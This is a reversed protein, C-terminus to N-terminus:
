REAHGGTLMYVSRAGLVEGRASLVRCSRRSPKSRPTTMSDAGVNLHCSRRSRPIGLRAADACARTGGEAHMKATQIGIRRAGLSRWREVDTPSPQGPFCLNNVSIRDHMRLRVSFRSTASRSRWASASETPPSSATCPRSTRVSSTWRTSSSATGTAATTPSIRRADGEGSGGDFPIATIERLLRPDHGVPDRVFDPYRVHHIRPDDILPENLNARFNARCAALHHGGRVRELRSQGGPERQDARVLRDAFRDVQVPDRHTWVMCADPYTDFLTALRRGHFGKLVWYKTPRAYQCHQLMMKHLRYQARADAPLRRHDDEDPRAVLRVADDHPFRVGLHTRVRAPRRRAHRQVSPSWGARADHERHRALRRRGARPASGRRRGPGAAAVPVHGGLVAARARESRRVAARAAAHNGLAARRDRVGAPRDRGSRDSLAQSGRLVAPPQHSALPM